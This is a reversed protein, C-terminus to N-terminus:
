KWIEHIAISHLLYSARCAPTLQQMELWHELCKKNDLVYEPSDISVSNFGRQLLADQLEMESLDDLGESRLLADDKCIFEANRKMLYSTIFTPSYKQTIINGHIANAGALLKIYKSPLADLSSSMGVTRFTSSEASPFQSAIHDRLEVCHQRREIFEDLKFETKQDISWFHDTLLFRPYNLAVIIPIWGAVPVTQVIAFLFLKSLAESNKKLLIEQRRSLPKDAYRLKRLVLSDKTETFVNKFGAPLQGALKIYHSAVRRVEIIM